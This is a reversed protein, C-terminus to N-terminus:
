NLFEFLRLITLISQERTYIDSPNFNNDGVGTMIGSNQMQAVGERAWSSIQSVDDFTPSSLPLPKDIASALRSLMVASQERSLTDNPAFNGEGVGSVVGLYGMKQVNVDNTDNFNMIDTIESGTVTEYLAVAFATFEARTAPQMYDGQLHLPILGQAFASNIGDHAWTNATALNPAPTPPLEWLATFTKNETINILDLPQNWGAFIFGTRIPDQTLMTADQGNDLTQQLLSLDGTYFGDNLDFSVNWQQQFLEERPNLAYLVIDSESNRIAWYVHETASSFRLVDNGNLVADSIEQRPSIISGADDVIAMFVRVSRSNRTFEEWLVLYQANGIHVIKPSVAHINPDTYNTLWIPNSIYSMDDSITLLFLNRSADDNNSAGRNYTGSFIFGSPTQALEGMEAGTFNAGWAGPFAFSEISHNSQGQTIRSFGFARPTADGHDALLFGNEVPLIFQNFSHGASPMRILNRGTLRDFTNVDLIFGWSAQHNLGDPGAFQRRAFYVAIMDDSIEIRATGARFPDMVGSYQAAWREDDTQAELWYEMLVVGESSYKSLVMNREQFANQEVSQAYFIFFNGDADRTFTGLQNLPKTFTVTRLLELDSSFEYSIANEIDMVTIIGNPMVVTQLGSLRATNALFNNETTSVSEIPVIATNTPNSSAAAYTTVKPIANFLLVTTVFLASTHVWKGMKKKHKDM